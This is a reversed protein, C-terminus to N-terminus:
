GFPSYLSLFGEKWNAKLYTEHAQTYVSLHPAGSIQLVSRFIGAWPLFCTSSGWPSLVWFSLESPFHLFTFETSVQEGALWRQLSPHTESVIWVETNMNM